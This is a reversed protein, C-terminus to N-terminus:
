QAAEDTTRCLAAAPQVDAVKGDTAARKTTEWCSIEEDNTHGASPPAFDTRRGGAVLPLVAMFHSNLKRRPTTDFSGVTTSSLGCYVAFAVQEDIREDGNLFRSRCHADSGYGSQFPRRQERCLSNRDNTREGVGIASCPMGLLPSHARDQCPYESRSKGTM